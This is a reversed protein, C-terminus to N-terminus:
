DVYGESGHRSVVQAPIGAITVGSNPLMTPHSAPRPPRINDLVLSPVKRSYDDVELLGCWAEVTQLDSVFSM